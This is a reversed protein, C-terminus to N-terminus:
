GIYTYFSMFAIQYYRARTEPILLYLIFTQLIFLEKSKDWKGIYLTYEAQM